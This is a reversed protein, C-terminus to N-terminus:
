GTVTPRSSSTARSSSRSRSSRTRRATPRRRSPPRCTRSQSGPCSRRTTAARDRRRGAGRDAGAVHRVRGARRSGAPQQRRHHVAPAALDINPDIKAQLWRWVDINDRERVYLLLLQGRNPYSKVGHISIWGGIIAPGLDDGEYQPELIIDDYNRDDHRITVAELVRGARDKARIVVPM